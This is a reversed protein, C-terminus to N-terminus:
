KNEFKCRRVLKSYLVWYVFVSALAFSSAVPVYSGIAISPYWCNTGRIQVRLRRASRGGERKSRASQAYARPHMMRLYISALAPAECTGAGPVHHAPRALGTYSMRCEAALRIRSPSALASGDFISRQVTGVNTSISGNAYRMQSGQLDVTCAGAIPRAKRAETGAKGRCNCARECYM